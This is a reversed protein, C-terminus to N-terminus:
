DDKEDIPDMTVKAEEVGSIQDLLVKWESKPSSLRSTPLALPSSGPVPVDAVRLDVKIRVIFHTLETM